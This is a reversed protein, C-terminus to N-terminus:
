GWLIEAQLGPRDTRNRLRLTIGSRKAAMETIALGLGSGTASKHRGRFFRKTVHSLEEEPIGPGEDCVVIGRGGPRARWEVTGTRMHQVANEHLNRVALRLSEPDARMTFGRLGPDIVTRIGPPARMGEVIEAILVGVDVDTVPSIEGAADLRAADLLQRVLHTTRDVAALIQRLAAKAVDPDAAAMAVQAQTKLGALPTRLEHAAFATVEREHRRAAEVKLFLGNLAEALPRVEAPAQRADIASMDDADRDALNRAMRRLPSLGRGLSAWILMGLLPVVLLAPTLLGMILDTVLRQRRGLRDGVMVRIGKESDEVTFVRWAEGDVERESFGAPADTLRQEPAGSSRAVMRGDLSWIQCSLQREYATPAPITPQTGDPNRGGVTGVLSGVMRAAEQLRNDLVQEVEHKSGLYIWAMASLWILGTALLLIAFLRVRLSRM